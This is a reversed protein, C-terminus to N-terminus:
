QSAFRGATRRLLENLVDLDLPKVLHQDFGASQTRRRDFEQGWGTQAILFMKAGWPFARIRRCVEYGDVNPMGLDIMAVDPRFQEAVVLAQEGEYAIRVEHGMSQLVMGLSDANDHLDDVVLIRCKSQPVPSEAEIRAAANAAARPGTAGLRMVFESGKGLGASHASLQGGHMEVLGRALSLGIGLGGHKRGKAIPVQNFMEFIRTLHEAAIGVGTDRVAVVIDDRERHAILQISGEPGTYKAANILLNSIVQALRTLDGNVWVPEAPIILEFTQGGEDIWPRATEIAQQIATALDM